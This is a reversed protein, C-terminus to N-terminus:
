KDLFEFNLHLIGNDITARDDADFLAEEKIGVYMNRIELLRGKFISKRLRAEIKRMEFERITSKVGGVYANTDGYYKVDPPCFVQYLGSGIAVFTLGVYLLLLKSSPHSEAIEQGGVEKILHLYTIAKQNFIILYGVIPILVTIKATSSNAISRLQSWTLNSLTKPGGWVTSLLSV